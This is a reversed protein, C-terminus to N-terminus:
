EYFSIQEELKKLQNKLEARQRHLQTFGLLHDIPDTFSSPKSLAAKLRALADPASNVFESLEKFKAFERPDALIRDDLNLLAMVEAGATVSQYGADSIPTNGSLM